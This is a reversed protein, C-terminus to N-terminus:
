ANLTRSGAWYEAVKGPANRLDREPIYEDYEIGYGKWRVLYERRTSKGKKTDRHKIIYDVEYEEEGDVILAPPPPQIRGNDHFQKLKAVHFVNHIRMNSPLELKYALEGIKGIIKFPGIYKPMLKNTGQLGINKTSLLVM